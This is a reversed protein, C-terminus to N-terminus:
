QMVSVRKRRKRRQNLQFTALDTAVSISTRKCEGALRESDSMAEEPSKSQKDRSKRSTTDGEQGGKGDQEPLHLIAPRSPDSHPVSPQGFRIPPPYARDEGHSNAGHGAKGDSANDNSIHVNVQSARDDAGEFHAGPAQTSNGQKSSPGARSPKKKLVNPRAGAQDTHTATGAASHGDHHSQDAHEVPVNALTQGDEPALNHPGLLPPTSLVTPIHTAIPRERVLRNKRGTQDASATSPRKVDPQEQLTHQGTPPQDQNSRLDAQDHLPATCVPPISVLDPQLGPSVNAHTTTPVNNIVRNPVKKLKNKGEKAPFVTKADDSLLSQDAPDGHIAPATASPVAPPINFAPETQLSTPDPYVSGPGATTM